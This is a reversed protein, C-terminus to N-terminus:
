YSYPSKYKACLAGMMFDTIKTSFFQFTAPKYFLKNHVGQMWFFHKQHRWWKKMLLIKTYKIVYYTVLVMLFHYWSTMIVDYICFQYTFFFIRGWFTALYIKPFTRFHFFSCDLRKPSIDFYVAPPSCHAGEGLM